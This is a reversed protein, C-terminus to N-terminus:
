LLHSGQVEFFILSGLEKRKVDSIDSDRHYDTKKLYFAVITHKSKLCASRRCKIWTEYVAPGANHSPSPSKFPLSSLSNPKLPPLLTPHPFSHSLDVEGVLKLSIQKEWYLDGATSGM